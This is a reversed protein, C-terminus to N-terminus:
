PITQIGDANGVGPRKNSTYCGQGWGQGGSDFRSKIHSGWTIEM